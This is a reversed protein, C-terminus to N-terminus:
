IESLDLPVQHGALTAGAVEISHSGLVCVGTEWGQIQMRLHSGAFAGQVWGGPRAPPGVGVGGRDADQSAFRCIGRARVQILQRGLVSGAATQLLWEGEPVALEELMGYVAGPDGALVLM